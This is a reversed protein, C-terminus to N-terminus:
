AATDLIKLPAEDSRFYEFYSHRPKQLWRTCKPRRKVRGPENRGAREEVHREALREWFNEIERDRLRPHGAVKGFNVRSEEVVQLAGKFSLRRHNVGHSQGAKLMLIRLLNCVIMHMLVEKRIMGPSKTRLMEMGLTTKIDRFRVEIEWRHHYLSAVEEAPYKVAELLTTVLYRVRQKGQRDLGKTRIIRVNMSEPLARWQTETLRSGKPRTSPKHYTQLREDPGTKRGERFDTKRAQHTRGVFHTGKQRLRAMIEYSSYLRDAVLVDGSELSGELADHGRLEGTQFASFSFDQLGGHVLDILGGLRIVPFGCGPKSGPPYPYKERKADTDPMQASTGDEARIRLGRWHASQPLNAELQAYLDHHVAQLMELPLAQRAACFRATGASPIQIKQQAAWTQIKAVARACSSDGSAVQGLFSWFVLPQPYCRVRKSSNHTELLEPSIEDRLQRAIDLVNNECLAHRKAALIDQNKRTPRGYLKTSFGTLYPTKQKM